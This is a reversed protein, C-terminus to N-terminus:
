DKGMGHTDNDMMQDDRDNRLRDDSDRGFGTTRDDGESRIKEDRDARGLTDERGSQHGSALGSTEPGSTNRDSLIAAGVTAGTSGPGAKMAGGQACVIATSGLLLGAVAAISLFTTRM